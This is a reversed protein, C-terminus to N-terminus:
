EGPYAKVCDANPMDVETNTLTFMTQMKLKFSNDNTQASKYDIFFGSDPLGFFLLKPNRAQLKAQLYDSWYYTALGGASCGSLIFMELKEPPVKDMIYDFHKMTNM